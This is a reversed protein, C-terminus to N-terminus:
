DTERGKKRKGGAFVAPYMTLERWVACRKFVAENFEATPCSLDGIQQKIFNRLKVLTPYEMEDMLLAMMFMSTKTEGCRYAMPDAELADVDTKLVCYTLIGCKKQVDAWNSAGPEMNAFLESYSYNYWPIVDKKYKAFSLAFKLLNFTSDMWSMATFKENSSNIKSAETILLFDPTDARLKLCPILGKTAITHCFSDFGQEDIIEHMAEVRHM